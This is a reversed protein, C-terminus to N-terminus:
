SDLGDVIAKNKNYSMNISNVFFRVYNLCANLLFVITRYFEEGEPNHNERQINKQMFVYISIHLKM